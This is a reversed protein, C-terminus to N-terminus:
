VSSFEEINYDNMVNSRVGGGGKRGWWQVYPNEEGLPDHFTTVSAGNKTITNTIMLQNDPQFTVMDLSDDWYYGIVKPNM